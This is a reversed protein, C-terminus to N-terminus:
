GFKGRGGVLHGLLGDFWGYCFELCPAAVHGPTAQGPRSWCGGRGTAARGQERNVTVVPDIVPACLGAQLKMGGGVVWGAFGAFWRTSSLNARDSLNM